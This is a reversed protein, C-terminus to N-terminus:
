NELVGHANYANRYIYLCKESYIDKSKLLSGFLDRASIRSIGASHSILFQLSEPFISKIHKYSDM